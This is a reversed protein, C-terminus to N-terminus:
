FNDSLLKQEIKPPLDSSLSKYFVNLSDYKFSLLDSIDYESKLQIKPDHTKRESTLNKQPM